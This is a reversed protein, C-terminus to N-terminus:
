KIKELGRYIAEPYNIRLQRAMIGIRGQNSQMRL